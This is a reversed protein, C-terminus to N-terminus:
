LGPQDNLSRYQLNFSATIVGTTTLQALLVRGEADPHAEPPNARSSMIPVASPPTTPLTGGAEFTALDLGVTEVLTPDTDAGITIWSDWALTPDASLDAPSYNPIASGGANQHFGNTSSISLPYESTGFISTM